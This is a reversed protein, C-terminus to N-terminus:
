IFESVARWIVHSDKPCVEIRYKWFLVDCQCKICHFDHFDEINQLAVIDFLLHPKNADIFRFPYMGDVGCTVSDLYYSLHYKSPLLVRKGKKLM